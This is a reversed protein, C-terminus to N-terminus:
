QAPNVPRGLEAQLAAVENELAIMKLERGVSLNNIEELEALKEKLTDDTKKKDTIDRIIQLALITGDPNKIPSATIEFFQGDRGKVVASSKDKGGAAIQGVLCAPRDASGGLPTDHCKKGILNGLLRIAAENMYRIEHQQDEILLGELMNALIANLRNSHERIKDESDGLKKVLEKRERVDKAVLVLGIPEGAIDRIISYSLIVPIKEMGKSLMESDSSNIEGQKIISEFTAGAFLRNGPAFVMEAPMGVLEQRSYGTMNATALNASFVKLNPDVLLLPDPLVEIINTAAREPSIQMLQYRIIAYAFFLSFVTSFLGALRVFHYGASPLIADTIIGFSFPIVTGFFAVRAQYQMVRNSSRLWTDFLLYFGISFMVLLYATYLSFGPANIVDWGWYVRIVGAQLFDTFLKLYFFILSPLYMLYLLGRNKLVDEKNTFALVFHLFLPGLYLWGLCAAIWDWYVAAWASTVIRLMMEGFNWVAIVLSLLAFLQNTRNRVNLSLVYIALIFTILFGTLSLFMYPNM